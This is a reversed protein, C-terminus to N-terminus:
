AAAAIHPPCLSGLAPRDRAALGARHPPLRHGGPHSALAAVPQAAVRAASGAVSRRRVPRRRDLGGVGPGPARRLDRFLGRTAANYQVGGAECVVAPDAERVSPAGALRALLIRVQAPDLPPPAQDRRQLAFLFETRLLEPLGALSFQHAGLLPREAAIWAGLEGAGLSAVEHQRLLRNDHFRCLGRRSVQERGCGPVACDDRRALPRARAIFAEVPETKDKRWSREHRFCLGRSHLEGECGPVLCGGRALPRRLLRRLPAADFEEWGAGAALRARRCGDCRRHHYRTAVPCGPTACPWAATRDSGLDGTFLWRQQDWEGPRWSRDLHDQLWELWGREGPREEAGAARAPVLVPGRM